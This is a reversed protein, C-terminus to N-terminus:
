RRPGPSRWTSAATSRHVAALGAAFLGLALLYGRVKEAVAPSASAVPGPFAYPFALLSSGVLALALPWGCRRTCRAAPKPAPQGAGFLQGVIPSLALVVGMLGIFVTIYAAAGVALAALDTASHARWWCRTSPASPWCRWSASSCRGPWRCRHAARQPGPRRTAAAPRRQWREGTRQGAAMGPAATIGPIRGTPPGAPPAAAGARCLPQLALGHRGDHHPAVRRAERPATPRGTSCKRLAAAAARACPTVRAPPVSPSAPRTPRAPTGPWGPPAHADAPM